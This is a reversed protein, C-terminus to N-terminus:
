SASPPPPEFSPNSPERTRSFSVALFGRCDFAPRGPADDTLLQQSSIAPELDKQSYDGILAKAVMKGNQRNWMAVSDERIYTFSWSSYYTLPQHSGCRKLRPPTNELPVFARHM